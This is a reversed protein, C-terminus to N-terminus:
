LKRYTNPKNENVYPTFNGSDTKENEPAFPFKKTKAKINDPHSLDVVVFHGIDFDDPTNLITELTVNKNIKKRM